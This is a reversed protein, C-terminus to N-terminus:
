AAPAQGYASPDVRCSHGPLEKRILVAHREGRNRGEDVLGIRARVTKCDKIPIFRDARPGDELAGVGWALSPLAIRLLLSGAGRGSNDHLAHVIPTGLAYIGIAGFAPPDVDNSVSAIFPAAAGLDVALTQYGYWRRLRSSHAEYAVRRQSTAEAEARPSGDSSEPAPPDVTSIPSVVVPQQSASAASDQPVADISEHSSPPPAAEAHAVRM